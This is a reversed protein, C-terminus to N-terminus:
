DRQPDVVRSNNTLRDVIDDVKPFRERGTGRSNDNAPTAPAIADKKSGTFANDLSVPHISM